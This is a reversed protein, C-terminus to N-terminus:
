LDTAEKISKFTAPKHIASKDNRDHNLYTFNKLLFFIEKKEGNKKGMKKGGNKRVEEWSFKKKAKM